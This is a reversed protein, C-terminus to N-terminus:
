IEVKEVESLQNLTLFLLMVERCMDGGKKLSKQNCFGRLLKKEAKKVGECICVLQVKHAKLTEIYLSSMQLFAAYLGTTM